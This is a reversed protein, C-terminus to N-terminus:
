DEKKRALRWVCVKYSGSSRGAISIRKEKRVKVFENYKGLINGLESATTGHKMERNIYDRLQMTDLEGYEELLEIVKNMLQIKTM